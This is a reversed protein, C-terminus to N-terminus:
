DAYAFAGSVASAVDTLSSDVHQLGIALLRLPPFQYASAMREAFLPIARKAAHSTQINSMPLNSAPSSIPDINSLATQAHTIAGFFTVM